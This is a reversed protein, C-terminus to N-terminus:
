ATPTAPMARSMGIFAIGCYKRMEVVDVNVAMALLELVCRAHKSPLGCQPLPLQGSHQIDKYLEIWEDSTMDPPQIAELPLLNVAVLGIAFLGTALIRPPLPDSSMDQQMTFFRSGSVSHQWVWSLQSSFVSRTFVNFRLTFANVWSWSTPVHLRWQLMQLVQKEQADIMQSTVPPVDYGMQELFKALTNARPVLACAQVRTSVCDDKKLLAIIAICAAPLVAVAEATPKMAKLYYMDLLTAAQFWSQPPLGVCQPMHTLFSLAAQRANAPLRVGDHGQGGIPHLVRQEQLVWQELLEDCVANDDLADLVVSNMRADKFSGADEVAEGMIPLAKAETLDVGSEVGQM